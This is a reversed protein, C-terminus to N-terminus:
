MTCLLNTTGVSVNASANPGATALTTGSSNRARVSGSLRGNAISGVTQLAATSVNTCVTFTLKTGRLGPLAYACYTGTACSGVARQLPSQAELIMGLAPWVAATDSVAIGGPVAELAYEVDPHLDDADANAAAPTLTLALALAIVGTITRKM